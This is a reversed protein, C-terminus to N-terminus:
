GIGNTRIWGYLTKKEAPISFSNNWFVLGNVSEYNLWLGFHHPHDVPEGKRSALPYGRTIINGDPAYIPYLVPKTLTDPFIVQTFPKGNDTIDIINEGAVASVKIIHKQQAFLALSSIAFFPLLVIRKYSM